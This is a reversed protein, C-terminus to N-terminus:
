KIEMPKSKHCEMILGRYETARDDLMGAIDPRLARCADLERIAEKLAEEAATYAKRKKAPDGIPARRAEEMLTKARAGADMARGWEATGPKPPEPPPAPPPEPAEPAAATPPPPPPAPVPPKPPAPPAQVTIADLGKPLPLGEGVFGVAVVGGVLALDLGLLIRDLVASM